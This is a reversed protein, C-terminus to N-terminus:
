RKEVIAAGCGYGAGFACMLGREGPVLDDSHMDFTMLVSSSSTNGYENLIIPAADANPERELAKKVVAQVIRINAQHLWGRRIDSPKYGLDSILTSSVKSAMPIVDRFVRHGDQDVFAEFAEGEEFETHNMFGFDSRLANSWKTELRVGQLEWGGAERDGAELLVAAAADGFIFHVERRRYHNIASMIEPCVILIADAQGTRILERAQQMAFIASACAMTMDFAWGRTMGLANQIEVSVAPFNRQQASSAVILGDVDEATRGAKELAKRAASLGFEAQFAMAEKERHPIRPRMRNIDMLGDKDVVHRNLIGSAQEIFQESSHPVANLDGAEIAAENEANFQDAYANFVEVLEANTIRSEPATWGVSRIVCDRM